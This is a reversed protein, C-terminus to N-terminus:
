RTYRTGHLKTMAPLQRTYQEIGERLEKVLKQQAAVTEALTADGEIVDGGLKKLQETHKELEHEIKAEFEKLAKFREGMNAQITKLQELTEASM